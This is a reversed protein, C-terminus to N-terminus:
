ALSAGLVTSTDLSLFALRTSGRGLEGSRHVIAAPDAFSQAVEVPVPRLRSGGTHSLSERAKQDSATVRVV